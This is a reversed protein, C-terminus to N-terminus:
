GTFPLRLGAVGGQRVSVRGTCFRNRPARVALLGGRDPRVRFRARGRRDTRASASVGAGRVTLLVRGLSRGFADRASVALRLPKSATASRRSLRLSRCREQPTQFAGIVRVIASAHNDQVHIESPPRRAVVINVRAGLVTALVRVTITASRGSAITGLNCSQTEASCSGQSPEGSLYVTGPGVFEAVVVNTAPANGENRVVIRTTYARGVDVTAPSASKVISLDARPPGPPPPPPPPPLPSPPPPQPPQPGPPRRENRIVCVVAARSAVDVALPVGTGEAIVDGAGRRDRCVVSIVYDALDTGAAGTEGVTHTGAEVGVDGTTGAEGVNTGTGAPEGDIELNFRGPDDSPLLAKDVRLTGPCRPSTARAVATRGDVAWTLSEAEFDVQLVDVWLGPFFQDPQGRNGPTPAFFNRPGIPVVEPISAPNEYGFHARTRGGGLIEVCELVPRVDSTPPATVQVAASASNNSPNTDTEESEVRVVNVHEGIDTALTEFTGTVAASAGVALSALRCTSAACVIDPPVELSGEVFSVGPPLTDVVLVDTATSPGNNTVTVTWTVTGGLVVTAPTVTKTVALDVQPPPPPEDKRTNTFLCVVSEDRAVPVSVSTAQAQAVVAGQGGGTRCVVVTDYDALDTPPVAVEDVTNTGAPVPITGTSGGARVGRGRTPAQGNIRLTFRGEDTEPVLLKDARLLGQCATSTSSATVSRGRVEWTLAQGDFPVSFVGAQAGPLFTTPQGRNIPAPSFQNEGGVPVSVSGANQSSYGYYAVYGPAASTRSVCELVPVIPQPPPPVVQSTFGVQLICNRDGGGDGGDDDDDDRPDDDGRGCLSDGSDDDDDDGDDDDKTLQSRLRVTITALGNVPPAPSVTHDSQNLGRGTKVCVSTVRYGAAVRFTAVEQSTQSVFSVGPAVGIWSGSNATNLIFVPPACNNSPPFQATASPSAGTGRKGWTASAAMGVVLVGVTAVAGIRLLRGVFVNM